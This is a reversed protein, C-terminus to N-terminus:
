AGKRTKSAKQSHYLLANGALFPKLERGTLEVLPEYMIDRRSHTSSMRWTTPVSTPQCHGRTKGASPVGILMWAFQRPRRPRCALLSKQTLLVRAGADDLVYTLTRDQSEVAIADAKAHIAKKLLEHVCLHRPYECCRQHNALFDERVVTADITPVHPQRPDGSSISKPVNTACLEM